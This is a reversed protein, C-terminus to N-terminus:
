GTVGVPWDPFRCLPPCSSSSLTFAETQLPKWRGGDRWNRQWNPSSRRWVFNTVRGVEILSQSSCQERLSETQFYTPKMIPESNKLWGKRHSFVMRVAMVFISRWLCSWFCATIDYRTAMRSCSKHAYGYKKMIVSLHNVVVASARVSRSEVWKSDAPTITNTKTKNFNYIHKLRPAM